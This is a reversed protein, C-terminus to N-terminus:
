TNKSLLQLLIIPNTIEFTYINFDDFIISFQGYEARFGIYKGFKNDMFYTIIEELEELRNSIRIKMKIGTFVIGLNYNIESYYRNLIISNNQSKLNSINLICKYQQVFVREDFIISHNFKM